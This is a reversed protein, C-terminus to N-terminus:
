CFWTLSIGDARWTINSASALSDLPDQYRDVSRARQSGRVGALGCRWGSRGRHALRGGRWGRTQRAAAADAGGRGLFSIYITWALM